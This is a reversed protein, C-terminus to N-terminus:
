TGKTRKILGPPLKTTTDLGAPAPSPNIGAVHNWCLGDIIGLSPAEGTAARFDGRLMEKTLAAPWPIIVPDADADADYGKQIDDQFAEWQRQKADMLCIPCWDGPPPGNMIVRAM